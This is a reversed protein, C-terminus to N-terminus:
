LNADSSPHCFWVGLTLSILQLEAYQSKVNTCKLNNKNYKISYHIFKSVGCDWWSDITRICDSPSDDQVLRAAVAGTDKKRSVAPWFTTAEFKKKQLWEFQEWCVYKRKWHPFFGGFTLILITNLLSLRYDFTFM